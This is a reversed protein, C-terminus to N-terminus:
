NAEKAACKHAIGEHHIARDIGYLPPYEVLEGCEECTIHLKGGLRRIGLPRFM